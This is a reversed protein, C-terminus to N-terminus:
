FWDEGKVANSRERPNDSSSALVRLHLEDLGMLGLTLGAFVGGLLVLFLSIGIHWWFSQSGIPVEPEEGKEAAAALVTRAALASNDSLARPVARVLRQFSSMLLPLARYTRSPPMISLRLHADASLVQDVRDVTNSLRPEIPQAVSNLPNNAIVYGGPNRVRWM